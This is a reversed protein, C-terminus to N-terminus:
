GKCRVLKDSKNGDLWDIQLSKGSLVLKFDLAPIAGEEGNCQTGHGKWTTGGGSYSVADCSFTTYAFARPKITFVIDGSCDDPKPAWKGAMSAPLPEAAAATAFAALLLSLILRTTRGRM